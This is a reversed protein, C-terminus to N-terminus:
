YKQGFMERIKTKIWSPTMALQHLVVKRGDALTLTFRYIRTSDSVYSIWKLSPDDASLAGSKGTWVRKVLKPQLDEFVQEATADTVDEVRIARLSKGDAADSLRFNYYVSKAPFDPLLGADLVEFGDARAHAPGGNTVAFKLEEGGAVTATYTFEKSVCGISGVLLAGAIAVFSLNRWLIKTHPNQSLM